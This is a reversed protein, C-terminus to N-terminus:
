CMKYINESTSPLLMSINILYNVREPSSSFIFISIRVLFQQIYILNPLVSNVVANISNFIGIILNILLFYLLALYKIKENVVHGIFSAYFQKDRASIYMKIFIFFINRSFIGIIINKISKNKTSKTFNNKCELM